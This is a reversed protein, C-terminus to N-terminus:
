EKIRLRSFSVYEDYSNEWGDYHVKLRGDKSISIVKGPLWTHEWLIFVFQGTTLAKGDTVRRTNPPMQGPAGMSAAQSKLEGINRFEETIEPSPWLLYGVVMSAFLMLVLGGMKAAVTKYRPESVQIEISRPIEDINPISPAALPRINPTEVAEKFTPGWGDYKVLWRSENIIQIVRAPWWRDGWNVAVADGEKFEQQTDAAPPPIISSHKKGCHACLVTKDDEQGVLPANCCSCTLERIKDGSM